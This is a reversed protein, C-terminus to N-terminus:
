IGNLSEVCIILTGEEVSIEGEEGIFENSIARPDSNELTYNEIEYKVNKETVGKSVDSLSYVSFYGKLDKKFTMKGNHVATIWFDEGILYVLCGKKTLNAVLQINGLTHDMRGGTAGFLYFTRCGRTYAEEAAIMMDTYNKAVPLAIRELDAPVPGEVSDSDGVFLQPKIGAIQLSNLGGDVAVILDKDSPLFHEAGVFDGAGTLYCKM